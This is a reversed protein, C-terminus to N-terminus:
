LLLIPLLGCGCKGRRAGFGREVHIANSPSHAGPAALGVGTEMRGGAPVAAQGAGRVHHQFRQDGTGTHGPCRHSREKQTLGYIRMTILFHSIGLTWVFNVRRDAVVHSVLCQAWNKMGETTIIDKSSM